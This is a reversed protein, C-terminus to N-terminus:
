KADELTQVAQVQEAVVTMSRKANFGDRPMRYAFSFTGPAGESATFTGQEINYWHGKVLVSTIHPFRETPINM